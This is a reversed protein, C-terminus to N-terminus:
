CNGEKQYGIELLDACSKEELLDFEGELLWYSRVRRRTVRSEEGELLETGGM